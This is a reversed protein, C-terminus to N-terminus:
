RAQAAFLPREDTSVLPMQNTPQASTVPVEGRGAVNKWVTLNRGYANAIAIDPRGDGDLDGIAVTVSNDGSAFAVPTALSASTFSGPIGLNRYLYMSSSYEGAIAVDPKGDGDIDGLAIGGKHVKAASAFTVPAAFSGATISGPLGINRYVSFNASNYSGVILDPKGDGDMDGVAVATETAAPGALDVRPAFSISGPTSTNQFISVANSITSYNVTVLDVKGDGDIDRAVVQSPIGPTQLTVPAAFSNSTLLGRTSINRLISLTNCFSAVIIDPKGDGDLDSVAVSDPQSAVAVDVRPAFSSTTLNGPSSLNQYISVVGTHINETVIDLRGDGDLDALVVDSLNDVGLSVNSPLILPPAFSAAALTGNTGINRYIWVTADYDNVFVL